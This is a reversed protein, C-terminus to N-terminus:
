YNHDYKSNASALLAAGIGSGDKTHEIVVNKSIELGLLETVAEQLYKRYQPYNEYLGGDMAVVTRKGFILGKSDDEMKELIGVIGAGALRGGRKVITDCVEVVIKRANLNSEVQNEAIYSFTASSFIPKKHNESNKLFM